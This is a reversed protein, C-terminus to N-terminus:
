QRYMIPVNKKRDKMGTMSKRYSDGIYFLANRMTAGSYLLLIIRSILEPYEKKLDDTRKKNKEEEKRKGAWIYFIGLILILVAIYPAKNEGSEYWKIDSDGIKKPLLYRESENEKNEIRVADELDKKRNGTLPTESQFAM